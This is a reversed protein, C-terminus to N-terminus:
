NRIFQILVNHNLRTAYRGRPKKRQKIKRTLNSQNNIQIKNVSASREKRICQTKQKELLPKKIERKKKKELKIKIKIKKRLFFQM